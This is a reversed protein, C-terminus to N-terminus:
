VGWQHGLINCSSTKFSLFHQTPRIPELIGLCGQKGIACIADHCTLFAILSFIIVTKSVVCAKMCSMFSLSLSSNLVTFQGRVKSTDGTRFWGDSTFEKATAEPKGWYERSINRQKQPIHWNTTHRARQLSLRVINIVEGSCMQAESWYSEKRATLLLFRIILPM